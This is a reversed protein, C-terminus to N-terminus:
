PCPSTESLLDLKFLTIPFTDVLKPYVDIYPKWWSNEDFEQILLFTAIFFLYDFSLNIGSEIVKRGIETERGMKATIIFKKPVTLIVENEEIDKASHVGRYDPGYNYIRVKDLKAGNQKMWLVFKEMNEMSPDGYHVGCDKKYKVKYEEITEKIKDSLPCEILSKIAGLAAGMDTLLQAKKIFLQILDKESNSSLKIITEIDAIASKYNHKKEYVESGIINFIFVFNIHLFLNIKKSYNIAFSFQRMMNKM